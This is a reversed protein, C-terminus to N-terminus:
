HRYIELRRVRDQLDRVALDLQRLAARIEETSTSGAGTRQAAEVANLRRSLTALDAQLRDLSQRMAENDDAPANTAALAAAGTVRPAANNPPAQRQVLFTAAAILLVLWIALRTVNKIQTNQM